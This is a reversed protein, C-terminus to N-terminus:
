FVYSVILPSRPCFTNSRYSRDHIRRVNLIEQSFLSWFFITPDSYSNTYPIAADLRCIYIRNSALNLKSKINNTSNNDKPQSLYKIYLCLFKSANLYKLHWGLDYSVQYKLSQTCILCTNLNKPIYEMYIAVHHKFKNYPKTYIFRYLYQQYMYFHVMNYKMM